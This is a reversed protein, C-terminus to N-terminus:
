NYKSYIDQYVERDIRDNIQKNISYDESLVQITGLKKANKRLDEQKKEMDTDLPIRSLYVNDTFKLSSRIQIIFSINSLKGKISTSAYSNTDLARSIDEIFSSPSVKNNELYEKIINSLYGIDIIAYGKDGGEKLIGVLYKKVLIDLNKRLKDEKLYYSNVKHLYQRNARNFLDM